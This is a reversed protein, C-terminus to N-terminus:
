LIVEEGNFETITLRNVKRIQRSDIIMINMTEGASHFSTCKAKRIYVKEGSATVWAISFVPVVDVLEHIKSSHIM